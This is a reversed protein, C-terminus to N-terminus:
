NTGEVMTKISKTLNVYDTKGSGLLPIQPVQIVKSPVLLPSLQSASIYDRVQKVQVDALTTCLIIQEGKRSDGIAVAAIETSGLCAMAVQEVVQLSVMEGAVKAFRKLRAKVHIFGDDDVAVIDGTKYWGDLPKFGEGHILYGKMLNPGKIWLEGGDEIGDVPEVHYDIGPFFQGVTGDKGQLPTNCAVFPSAETTGYGEFIGKKFKQVYLERVEAKVQEAGAIIYRLSQFDFANAAKGWNLLFTSTGLLVTCNRDYVVEPVVRYHLPSPYLHACMGHLIPLLTGATLGFSHFMPLANFFKDQQTLDIMTRAQKINAFLNTHTLVVGKPTNESGSTFLVLENKTAKSPTKFLYAFLGTLKQKLGIRARLDEL